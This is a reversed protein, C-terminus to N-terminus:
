RVIKNSPLWNKYGPSPGDDPRSVLSHGFVSVTSSHLEQFKILIYSASIVEFPLFENMYM